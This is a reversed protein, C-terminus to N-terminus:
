MSYDEWKFDLKHFVEKNGMISFIIRNERLKRKMIIPLFDIDIKNKLFDMKWKQVEKERELNIEPSMLIHIIRKILAKKIIFRTKIKDLDSRFNLVAESKAKESVTKVFKKIEPKEFVESMFGSFEKQSVSEYITFNSKGM